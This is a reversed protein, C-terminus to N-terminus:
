QPALSLDQLQMEMDENAFFVKGLERLHEGEYMGATHVHSTSHMNSTAHMNSTTPVHSTTHM